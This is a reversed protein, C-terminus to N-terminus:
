DFCLSVVRGPGTCIGGWTFTATSKACGVFSLRVSREVARSVDRSVGGDKGVHGSNRRCGREDRHRADPRVMTQRGGRYNSGRKPDASGRQGTPQQEQLPLGSAARRM